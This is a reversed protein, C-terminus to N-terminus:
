QDLSGFLKNKTLLASDLEIFTADQIWRLYGGPTGDAWPVYRADIGYLDLKEGSLDFRFEEEVEETTSTKKRADFKTFSRIQKYGM